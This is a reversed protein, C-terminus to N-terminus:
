YIDGNKLPIRVLANIWPLNIENPDRFNKEIMDSPDTFTKSSNHFDSYFNDYYSNAYAGLSLFFLLFIYIKNKNM